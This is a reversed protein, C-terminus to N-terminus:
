NGSSLAIFYANRDAQRTRKAISRITKAVSNLETASTLMQSKLRQGKKIYEQANDGKWNAAVHELCTHFESDALNKLERAIAELEAAQQLAKNYDLNIQYLSKAM